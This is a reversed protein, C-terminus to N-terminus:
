SIKEERLARRLIKGVNTKPLENCFEIYKPVKYGTLSQRCFHIIDEVSLNTQEKVIYAKVAEGSDAHHVGIVAAERVGPIQTLVDEVENPYVNFGSVIIMDKKRELIKVYGKNDISAIDGTLLWGDEMLVKKTELPNRWYGRMVQPGKVALEGAEGIPVEKGQEDLIRVSTSSIPLGVTANYQQLNPPNIAVCPSAETLGYAELLPVGTLKIWREAVASQVAMGGGIAFKLSSFDLQSFKPNKMMANYLTNVGTIATFKFHSIEKIFAKIDRPNVILINLGGMKMMFLSNAMLSFIHYLPLATVITEKGPQMLSSFWSVAQELNAIINRHTLMAGKSIGTTGGTYQLFAIDQGSLDVRDLTLEKGRTIVTTFSIANSLNWKPIKKKIHKLVFHIMWAKPAPLMDGIRTVIINKLHINGLAKEVTNAFNELVIITEADADQLQHTLEPVTYLPNVNVVILGARLAGFMAIPYQLINPLMIAVRSGKPLKLEKQLYAAFARSYIDLEHFSITKGLSYYAPLDHFKAASQEFLEALSHYADPNIEHPVNKPYSQFWPTAEM